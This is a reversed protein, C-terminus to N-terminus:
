FSLTLFDEGWYKNTNFTNWKYYPKFSVFRYDYAAAWVLTNFTNWKYYPKFSSFRIGYNGISKLISPIGNIILNLVDLNM